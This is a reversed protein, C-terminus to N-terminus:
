TSVAHTNVVNILAEGAAFRDIEQAIMEAGHLLTEYTAGGIHPTLIVNEYALLPHPGDEQTPRFVDLAVGGLRGAALAMELATEDVLTERATNILFAGPRMRALAASDILDVNDATARAHLSVFDACELLEGLSDVSKVDLGNETTRLLPDYFLVHMGCARARTAVRSGVRGYGVLGLSHGRLDNGLFRVGEWNDKVRNGDTLFRQAEPIGRALMVLFALTQDAVADANKGPTNVLPIGRASVADVDINVPGGRACCVLRLDPSAAVVSDTVPAGHVVLIEVDSAQAALETPSGQYESLGLESPSSPEFPKLADVDHYVIEHVRELRVFAQRFYHAPMFSDGVALIRM